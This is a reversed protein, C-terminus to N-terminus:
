RLGHGDSSLPDAESYEQARQALLGRIKSKLMAQQDPQVEITSALLDTSKAMLVGVLRNMSEHDLVKTAEGLTATLGIAFFEWTGAFFGQEDIPRGQEFGEMAALSQRLLHKLFGDSYKSESM